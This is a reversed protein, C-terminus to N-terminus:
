AGDRSGTQFCHWHGSDNASKREKRLPELAPGSGQLLSGKEPWSLGSPGSHSWSLVGNETFDFGNFSVSPPQWLEGPCDLFICSLPPMVPVHSPTDKYSLGQSSCIPTTTSPCTQMRLVLHQLPDPGQCETAGRLPLGEPFPGGEATVPDAPCASAQRREAGGRLKPDGARYQPPQM